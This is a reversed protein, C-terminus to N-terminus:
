KYVTCVFLGDSTTGTGDFDDTTANYSNLTNDFDGFLNRQCYERGVFSESFIARSMLPTNHRMDILLRYSSEDNINPIIQWIIPDNPFTVTSQFDDGGNEVVVMNNLLIANDGLVKFNIDTLSAGSNIYTNVFGDVNSFMVEMHKLESMIQSDDAEYRTFLIITAAVIGIISALFYGM